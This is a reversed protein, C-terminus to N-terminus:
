GSVRKEILCDEPDYTNVVRYDEDFADAISVAAEFDAGVESDIEAVAVWGYDDNNLTDLSLRREVYCETPRVDEHVTSVVRVEDDTIADSLHDAEEYNDVTGDVISADRTWVTTESM